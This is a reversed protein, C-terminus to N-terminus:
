GIRRAAAQAQALYHARIRGLARLNIVVYILTNQNTISRQNRLFPREIGLEKAQSNIREDATRQKYVAKFADADRDLTYRLRAGISTGLTTVCGGDTWHPDAIPCVEGTPSPFLLPCAHRGKQHPVLSTREIFTSKLPMALGAPCRPWGHDDFTLRAHKGKDVFPVAAFGHADHFADYVYFADFAADFAGFPPHFGLRRQTDAMLPHFYSADSKDFTQTREALVVEAVDPIKTAIVGSAYGWYYEPDSKLPAPADAGRSHQSAPQPNTTPTPPTDADPSRNARSKVGLKCDPDGNLRRTKDYRDKVFAKPNNEQVWALIHKTDGAVVQGFTARVADPLADAILRVTADLLFQLSDNPLHRLVRGFHKRSPLHDPKFGLLRALAPHEVLYIRLDSMYRLQADLKVLFAAVYPARPYDPKRGPWPRHPDREPFHTWDLDHLLRHYKLAVPCATVWSPLDAEALTLPLSASPVIALTPQSHRVAQSLWKGVPRLRALM